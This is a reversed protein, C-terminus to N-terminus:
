EKEQVLISDATHQHLSDLSDPAQSVSGATVSFQSTAPSSLGAGAGDEIGRRSEAQRISAPRVPEPRDDSPGRSSERVEPSSDTELRPPGPHDGGENQSRDGQEPPLGPLVLGDPATTGPEQRPPQSLFLLVAAAVATAPVAFLPRFWKVPGPTKAALRQQLRAHFYWPANVPAVHRILERLKRTKESNDESEINV